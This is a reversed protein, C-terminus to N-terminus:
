SRSRGLSDPSVWVVRVWEFDSPRDDRALVEVAAQLSADVSSGDSERDPDFRSWALEM